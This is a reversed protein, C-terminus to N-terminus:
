LRYFVMDLIDCDQYEMERLLATNAVEDLFIAKSMSLASEDFGVKCGGDKDDLLIALAKSIHIAM